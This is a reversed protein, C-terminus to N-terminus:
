GEKGEAAAAAAEELREKCKCYRRWRKASESTTPEPTLFGKAESVTAAYQGDDVRIHQHAAGVGSIYMAIFTRPHDGVRRLFETAHGTGFADVWGKEPVTGPYGWDFRRDGQICPKRPGAVEGFRGRWTRVGVAADSLPLESCATLFASYEDFAHPPLATCEQLIRIVEDRKVEVAGQLGAHGVREAAERGKKCLLAVQNLAYGGLM